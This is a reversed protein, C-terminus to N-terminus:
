KTRMSVSDQRNISLPDVFAVPVDSESFGGAVDVVSAPVPALHAAHFLVAL